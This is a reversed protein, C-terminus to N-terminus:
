HAQGTVCWVELSEEGDPRVLLRPPPDALLRPPPANEPLQDLIGDRRPQSVDPVM